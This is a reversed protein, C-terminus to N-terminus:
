RRRPLDDRSGAPTDSASEEPSRRSRHGLWVGAFIAFCLAVFIVNVLLPSMDAAGGSRLLLAEYTDM